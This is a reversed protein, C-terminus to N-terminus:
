VTLVARVLGSLGGRTRWRGRSERRQRVRGSSSRGGWGLRLTLRDGLVAADLDRQLDHDRSVADDHGLRGDLEVILGFDEYEVDRFGRRGVTTPAQRLPAPLGHPREVKALYRHELVSCAGTDVDLLVEHLLRRRRIRCRRDLADLLRGPTTIRVQVADALAAIAMTTTAAGAAVDLVADDTRIRPPHADRVVVDDFDTRYHVVVGPRRTVSRRADVCVHIPGNAEGVVGTVACLASRHSLAAPAADLVACWARQVWTMPGTHTVYVGEYVAVWSGRRLQRRLYATGLGCALVQRRSVVGSQERTLGRLRAESEDFEGM